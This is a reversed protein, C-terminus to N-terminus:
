GVYHARLPNPLATYPPAHKNHAGGRVPTVNVIANLTIKRQPSPSQRKTLEGVEVAHPYLLQEHLWILNMAQAFFSRACSYSASLESLRRTYETRLRAGDGIAGILSREIVDWSSDLLAIGM